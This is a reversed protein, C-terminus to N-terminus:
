LFMNKEYKIKIPMNYLFSIRDIQTMKSLHDSFNLFFFIYYFLRLYTLGFTSINKKNRWSFMHQLPVELSYGFCINEYLFLLFM